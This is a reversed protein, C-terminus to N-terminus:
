NTGNTQAPGHGRRWGWTSVRRGCLDRPLVRLPRDAAVTCACLARLRLLMGPALADRCGADGRSGAFFPSARHAPLARQAPLAGHLYTRTCARINSFARTCACINSFRCTCARLTPLRSIVPAFYARTCACHVQLRAFALATALTCVCARINCFRSQLRKIVAGM